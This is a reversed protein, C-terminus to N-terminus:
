LSCILWWSMATCVSLSRMKMLSCCSRISVRLLPLIYICGALIVGTRLHLQFMELCYSLGVVYTMFLLLGLVKKTPHDWTTNFAQLRLVRSTSTSSLGPSCLSVRNIYFCFITSSYSSLLPALPIAWLTFPSTALSSLRLEIWPVWLIPPSFLSMSITRQGEYTHWPVLM